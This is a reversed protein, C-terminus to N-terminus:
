VDAKKAECRVGKADIEVIGYWGEYAPGPYFVTSEGLKDIARAEHIHATIVLPPKTKLIFDRIVKSGVHQGTMIRDAKTDKPPNHVVLVVPNKTKTALGDLAAETEKETPEFITNFPTAAGGWGVFDFGMFTRVGAHLNVGFENFLEVIEYPDHNGPVCFLPKNASLLKQVVLNAVDTQSFDTPTNFMDTFDGPCIMLDYSRGAADLVKGLKNYHGHVDAIVLIKM